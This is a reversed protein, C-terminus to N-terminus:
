AAGVRYEYPRNRTMYLAARALSRSEDPFNRHSLGGVAAQALRPVVCISTTLPPGSIVVVRNYTTGIMTISIVYASKPTNPPTVDRQKVPSASM